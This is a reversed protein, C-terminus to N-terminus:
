SVSQLALTLKPRFETFNLCTKQDFEVPTLYGLASHPRKQNYVQEIFHGIGAEVEAINDYASLHVEEKLMRIHTDEQEWAFISLVARRWNETTAAFYAFTFRQYDTTTCIFLPYDHQWAPLSADRDRGDVLGRQINHIDNPTIGPM